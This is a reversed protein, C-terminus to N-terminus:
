HKGNCFSRHIWWPLAVCGSGDLINVYSKSPKSSIEAIVGDAIGIDVKEGNVLEVDKILYTSM